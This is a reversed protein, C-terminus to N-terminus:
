GRPRNKAKSMSKITKNTLNQIQEEIKYLKLKLTVEAEEKNQIDSMAVVMDQKVSDVRYVCGKFEMKCHWKLGGYFLEGINHNNNEDINMSIKHARLVERTIQQALKKIEKQKM